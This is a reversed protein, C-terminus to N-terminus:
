QGNSANEGSRAAFEGASLQNSWDRKVFYPVIGM